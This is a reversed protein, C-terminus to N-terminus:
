STSEDKIMNGCWVNWHCLDSADIWDFCDAARCGDHGTDILLCKWYCYVLVWEAINLFCKVLKFHSTRLSTLYKSDARVLQKGTISELQVGSVKSRFLANTTILFCHSNFSYLICYEFISFTMMNLPVVKKKGLIKSHLLHCLRIYYYKLSSQVNWNIWRKRQM